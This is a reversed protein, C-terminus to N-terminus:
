LFLFLVTDFFVRQILTIKYTGAPDATWGSLTEDKIGQALEQIISVAEELETRAQAPEGSAEYM